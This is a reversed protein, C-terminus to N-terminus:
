IARKLNEFKKQTRGGVLTLSYNEYTRNIKVFKQSLKSSHLM